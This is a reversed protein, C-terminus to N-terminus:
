VLTDKEDKCCDYHRELANLLTVTDGWICTASRAEWKPVLEGEKIEYSHPVQEKFVHDIEVVDLLKKADANLQRATDLMRKITENWKTRTM